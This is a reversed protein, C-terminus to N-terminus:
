QQCTTSNDWKVDFLTFNYTSANFFYEWGAKIYGVVATQNNCTKLGVCEPYGEISVEMIQIDWYNMNDSKLAIDFSCLVIQGGARECAIKYDHRIQDAEAATMNMTAKGHFGAKHSTSCLHNPTTQNCAAVMFLGKKMDAEAFQTDNYLMFSETVCDMELSKSFSPFNATLLLVISTLSYCYM